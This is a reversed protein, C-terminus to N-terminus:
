LTMHAFIRQSSQFCVVALAACFLEQFVHFNGFNTILDSMATASPSM